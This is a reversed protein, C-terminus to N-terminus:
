RCTLTSTASVTEGPKDPNPATATITVPNATALICTATAMSSGGLDNALSVREADSATWTVNQLYPPPVPPTSHGSRCDGIVTIQAMATYQVKNGPAAASHDATANSPYIYAGTVTRKCGGAGNGCATTAVILTVLIPLLTTKIARRLAREIM